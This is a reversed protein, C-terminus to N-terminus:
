GNIKGISDNVTDSATKIEIGLEKQLIMEKLITVMNVPIPYNDDYTPVLNNAETVETPIEFVGRIYLNTLGKSNVLYLRNSNLFSITDEQTFRKFKQWNARSEPVLQIQNGFVDGIFTFGSGYNLDIVKPLEINTRYIGKISDLELEINDISQIYAPNIDKGKDLDRKLLLARYQHIWLELQKESIEEDDIVKAGRIINLLDYIITRLSVFEM